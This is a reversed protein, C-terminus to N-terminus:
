VSQVLPQAQQVMSVLPLQVTFTSGKGKASLVSINGGIQDLARKTIALGLGSGDYEARSHLRKFMEFIQEQFEPDIGIGNDKFHLLLHAETKEAIIQITAALSENYHIANKCLNSVILQLATKSTHLSIEDDYIIHGNKKLLMLKMDQRVMKIVDGLAFNESVLEKKAIMSYQMVDQILHDMQKTSDKISELLDRIPGSPMELKRGLLSAFGSINRLPERLDHSTIYTFYTLEENAKELEQVSSQLAETKEQVLQDLQRNLKEKKRNWWLAWGLLLGALLGVLIIANQRRQLKFEAQKQQEQLLQNDYAAEQLKFNTEQIQLAETKQIAQITDSLQQHKELYYFASDFMNLNQFAEYISEYYGLGLDNIAMGKESLITLGEKAYQIQRYYERREGALTALCSLCITIGNAYSTERALQLGEAASVRALEWRDTQMYLHAIQCLSVSLKTTNNISRKLEIAEVFYSEAEAFKEQTLYVDAVNNLIVSRGLPWDMTDVIALGKLYYELVKEPDNFEDFSGAMSNYLAVMQRASGNAQAIKMCANFQELAADQQGMGQYVLGKMTITEMLNRTCDCSRNVVIATDLFPIFQDSPLATEFHIIATKWYSGGLEEALQEGRALDISQRLYLLASDINRETDYHYNGLQYLAKWRTGSDSSNLLERHLSDAQNQGYLQGGGFLLLSFM